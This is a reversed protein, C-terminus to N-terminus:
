DPLEDRDGNIEECYFGEQVAATDPTDNQKTEGQKHSGTRVYGWRDLFLKLRKDTTVGDTKMFEELELSGSIWILSGKKVKAKIIRVANEGWAWVQMFQTKASEGHGIREALGFRTYQTQNKSSTQLDFDATVRGIVYLQAM